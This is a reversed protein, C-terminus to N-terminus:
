NASPGAESNPKDMPQVEILPIELPKTGASDDSKQSASVLATADIRGQAVAETFRVTAYLEVRDIRVRLVPSSSATAAAVVPHLSPTVSANPAAASNAYVPSSPHDTAAAQSPQAGPASAIHVPNADRPHPSFVSRYHLFALLAALAAAGALLPLWSLAPRPARESEAAIRRRLRANFDPSPVAEFQARLKLDLSGLFERRRALERRCAECVELHLRFAQVDAGSEAGLAYANLADQYQRCDM